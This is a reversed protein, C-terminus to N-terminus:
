AKALAAIQDPTVSEVAVTTLLTPLGARAAILTELDSTEMPRIYGPNHAGKRALSLHPGEMHLGAFGRVGQRHAAIGADLAARTVEVTDTVLTPLLATTGFQFNAACLKELGAVSRDENFLVGGAGNVQLDVFG